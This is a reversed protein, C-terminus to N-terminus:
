APITLIFETGNNNRQILEGNIQDSLLDVLELGLSHTGTSLSKRSFGTGNDAIRLIYTKESGHSLSLTITGRTDGPFAHTFANTLLENLILGMPVARNIDLSIDDIHIDLTIHQQSDYLYLLNSVMSQIYPGMEIESLSENKYLNEHVLAMSFVRDRFRLLVDIPNQFHNYQEIQLNLLSVIVTLNNKVRHHIEQILTKKEELSKEINKQITHLNKNAVNKKRVTLLLFVSLVLLIFFVTLTGWFLETYEYYFSFPHNIITSEPPLERRKIGFRKLAEYDFMYRNLQKNVVSVDEVAKGQLIEIAMEAAIEGHESADDMKGGVVGLGLYFSGITYIPVDSIATLEPVFIKPPLYINNKDRFFDRYFLATGKELEAVKSKLEEVTIGGGPDLFFFEVKDSLQQALRTLRRRNGRGSTTWDTIFGIRQLEPHLDLMLEVTERNNPTEVVGTVNSHGRLQEANYNNVGCFVVPTNGFLETGYRLLFQYANDDSALIIDFYDKEYKLEYVARYHDMLESDMGFFHRKTDLYEITIEPYELREYLESKMGEMIGDSWLLGPHYSNLILIQINERACVRGPIVFLPICIVAIFLIWHFRMM